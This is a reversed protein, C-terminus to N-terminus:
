VDWISEIMHSVMAQRAADTAEPQGNLILEVTRPPLWALHILNGVYNDTINERLAIEAMSRARGSSLDEFWQHARAIAKVVVPDPQRRSPMEILLSRAAPRKPSFPVEFSVYAAEDNRAEAQSTRPPAPSSLRALRVRIELRDKLIVIRSVLDAVLTHKTATAEAALEDAIRAACLRESDVLLHVFPPVQDLVEEAPKLLEFADSHAGVLGILAEGGHDM